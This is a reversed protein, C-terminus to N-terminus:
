YVSLKTVPTREIKFYFFSLLDKQPKESGSTPRVSDARSRAPEGDGDGRRPWRTESSGEAGVKRAGWKGAPQGEPAPSSLYDPSKKGGLFQPSDPPPTNLM